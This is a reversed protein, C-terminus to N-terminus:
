DGDPPPVVAMWAIVSTTAAHTQLMGLKTGKARMSGGDWNRLYLGRGNRGNLMARQAEAAAIRYWRPNHGFRYLELLCRIYIADYQPGM